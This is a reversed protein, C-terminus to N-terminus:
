AHDDLQARNKAEQVPHLVFWHSTLEALGGVARIHDCIVRLSVFSEEKLNQKEVNRDVSFSREVGTQWHSLILVLKVVNWIQSYDPATGNDTEM